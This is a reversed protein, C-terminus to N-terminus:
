APRGPTIIDDMNLLSEVCQLTRLVDEMLQQFTFPANVMGFLMVKFHYLNNVTSSATKLKDEPFMAVQWFESCFGM